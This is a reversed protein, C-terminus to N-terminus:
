SAVDTSGTTGTLANTLADCVLDVQVQEMTPYLPLTLLRAAVEETVPLASQADEGEILYGSFRHIPPYHISTQIDRERMDQMVQERRAEPPLSVVFLHNASSGRLNSLPIELGQVNRLRKEYMERLEARRANKVVLKELQVLGLAARMEDIRYNYGVTSVDYTYAHGRHRDLTVSSM